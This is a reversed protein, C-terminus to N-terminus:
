IIMIHFSIVTATWGQRGDFICAAFDPIRAVVVTTHNIRQLKLVCKLTVASGCCYPALQEQACAYCAKPTTDSCLCVEFPSATVRCYTTFQGQTCAYSQHLTDHMYSDMHCSFMTHVAIRPRLRKSSISTM